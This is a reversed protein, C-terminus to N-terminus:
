ARRGTMLRTRALAAVSRALRRWRISVPLARRRGETSARLALVVLPRPWTGLRSTWRDREATTPDRGLVAHFTRRLFRPPPLQLLDNLSVRPPPPAEGPSGTPRRWPFFDSGEIPGETAFPQPPPIPSGARRRAEVVARVRDLVDAPSVGDDRGTSM